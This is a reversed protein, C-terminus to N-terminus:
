MGKPASLAEEHTKFTNRGNFRSGCNTCKYSKKFSMRSASVGKSSYETSGCSECACKTKFDSSHTVFYKALSPGRKLYPLVFNFLNETLEVDQNNYKMMARQAVKDGMLCDFWLSAHDGDKRGLDYYRGAEDLKNSPQGLQSVLRKTDIEEFFSPADMRHYAIRAMVKPNDFNNSYHGIVIDAEDLLDRIDKVLYKDNLNRLIDREDKPARFSKYDWISKFKTKKDGLWKYSVSFIQQDVLTRLKISENNRRTPYGLTVEPSVEIDYILIKPKM